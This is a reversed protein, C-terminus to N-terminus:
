AAGGYVRHWYMDALMNAKAHHQEAVGVCLGEPSQYTILLVKHRVQTETILKRIPAEDTHGFMSMLDKIRAGIPRDDVPTSPTCKKLSVAPLTALLELTRDYGRPKGKESNPKRGM